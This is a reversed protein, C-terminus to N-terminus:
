TNPTVRIGKIQHLHSSKILLTKHEKINFDSRNLNKSFFQDFSECVTYNELVERM